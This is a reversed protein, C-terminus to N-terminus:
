DEHVIADAHQLMEPSVAIVSRGSCPLNHLEARGTGSAMVRKTWHGVTSRNVAASSCASSLHQSANRVSSKITVLFQM